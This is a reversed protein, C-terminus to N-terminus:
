LPAACRVRAREGRIQEAVTPMRTEVLMADLPDEDVHHASARGLPEGDLRPERAAAPEVDIREPATICREPRRSHWADPLLRRVGSGEGPPLALPRVGAGERSSLSMTLNSDTDLDSDGMGHLANGNGQRLAADEVFRQRQKRPRADHRRLIGLSRALQDERVLRASTDSTIAARAPRASTRAARRRRSRADRALVHQELVAAFAQVLREVEADPAAPM